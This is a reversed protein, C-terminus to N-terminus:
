ECQDKDGVKFTNILPLPEGLPTFGSVSSVKVTYTGAPTVIDQNTCRFENEGWNGVCSWAESTAGVININIMLNQDFVFKWIGAEDTKINEVTYGQGNADVNETFKCKANGHGIFLLFLLLSPFTDM